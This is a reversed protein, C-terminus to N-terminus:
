TAKHSFVHLAQVYLPLSLIVDGHVIGRQNLCKVASRLQEAENIMSRHDLIDPLKVWSFLNLETSMWERDSSMPFCEAIHQHSLPLLRKVVQTM